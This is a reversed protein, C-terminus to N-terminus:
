HIGGVFLTSSKEPAIDGASAYAASSKQADGLFGIVIFISVAVVGMMGTVAQMKESRDFKLDDIIEGAVSM